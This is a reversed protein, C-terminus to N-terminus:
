IVGQRVVPAVLALFIVRFGVHAIVAAALGFHQYLLGLVLGMALAILSNALRGGSFLGFRGALAEALAFLAAAAWIGVLPQLAARFLIEAALGALLGDVLLHAPVSPSRGLGAALRMQEGQGWPTALVSLAAAGGLFAGIGLGLVLQAALSVPGTALAAQPHSRTIWIAIGALLLFAAQVRVTELLAPAAPRTSPKRIPLSTNM